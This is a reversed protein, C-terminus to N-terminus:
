YPSDVKGTEVYVTKIQSYHSLAALGNERGIGSNKYGGFPVEVPTLNYANIWCTGAKLAAIVRHGRASDATFVGAALGFETDNARAIVEDEDKFTLISM